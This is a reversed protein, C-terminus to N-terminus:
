SDHNTKITANEFVPFMQWRFHSEVLKLLADPSPSKATTASERSCKEAAAAPNPRDLNSLVRTHKAYLDRRGARGTLNPASGGMM